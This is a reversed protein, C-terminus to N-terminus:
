HQYYLKSTTTHSSSANVVGEIEIPILNIIIITQMLCQKYVVQIMWYIGHAYLNGHMGLNHVYEYM